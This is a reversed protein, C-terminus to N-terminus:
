INIVIGSDGSFHETSNEKLKIKFDKLIPYKAITSIIQKETYSKQSIEIFVYSLAM